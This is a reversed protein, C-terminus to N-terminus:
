QEGQEQSGQSPLTQADFTAKQEPSLTAYFAKLAQSQQNFDVLEARMEAAVLDMRQPATMQPFMRAAAQRRGQARGPAAAQARYAQWAGEQGASLHLARHLGDLASQGDSQSWAQPASIMLAAVSVLALGRLGKM